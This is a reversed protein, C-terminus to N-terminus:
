FVATDAVALGGKPCGKSGRLCPDKKVPASRCPSPLDASSTPLVVGHLCIWGIYLIAM